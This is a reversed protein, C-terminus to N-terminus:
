QQQQQQQQYVKYQPEQQEIYNVRGTLSQEISELQNALNSFQQKANQDQSELAFTKLQTKASSISNLTQHMKTGVTM